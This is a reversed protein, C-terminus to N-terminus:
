ANANKFIIWSWHIYHLLPNLYYPTHLCKCRKWLHPSSPPSTSNAAFLLPQSAFSSIKCKSKTQFDSADQTNSSPIYNTSNHVPCPLSCWVFTAPLLDNFLFFSIVLCSIKRCHVHSSIVQCSGVWAFNCKINTSLNAWCLRFVASVVFCYSYFQCSPVNKQIVADGVFALELVTTYSTSRITCAACRATSLLLFLVVVLCIIVIIIITALIVIISIIISIITTIIIISSHCHSCGLSTPIM